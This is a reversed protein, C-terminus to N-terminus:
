ESGSFRVQFTAFDILDVDGDSDLDAAACESFAMMGPGTWCGKLADLDSLSMRGDGNVDGLPGQGDQHARYYSMWIQYDVLTIAGDGDYDAAAVYEPDGESHGFAAQFLQFDDEDMDGDHDLDARIPFVEDAGVDVRGYCVRPDGDIDTAGPAPAFAPDGANICPSDETLHYNYVHYTDGAEVWCAGAEVTPWDAWVTITNATNGVVAFQLRQSADPNVMNGVLEDHQWTAADDTFIARYTDADYTAHLTWTGSAEVRFPPEDDINGDGWDLMGGSGVYASTRGGQVDSYLVAVTGDHTVAIEHGEFGHNAWLVCSNMTAGGHRCYIGGGRRAWNAGFTCNRITLASGVGAFRIGGGGGSSVYGGASNGCIMCNLVTLPGGLVSCCMGGGEGWGRCSNGSIICGSIMAESRSCYIGGGDAYQGVTANGTIACDTIVPSSAFCFVGGGADDHTEGLAANGSIVSEAVVGASLEDFYIGGGREASNGSLLCDSVIITSREECYIGGGDRASNESVTSETITLGSNEHCAVGGGGERGYPYGGTATNGRITCGSIALNGELCSIGGGHKGASNHSVTCNVITAESRRCYIGGGHYYALCDIIRCNLITPSAQYCYIGGGLGFSPYGPWVHGNVVTVGALVSNASEDSYFTFGRHPDEECVGCDVITTAVMAPDEPDTCRVTIPKGCFDIDRNGDGTYVRPALVVADGPQAADIAAQITPYESPVQRTTGIRLIVAVSQPTNSAQSAAIGLICGHPGAQLGAVDLTVTALDVEGTSEGALPSVQLWDCDESIQWDLTGTGGNQIALTRPSPAPGDAPVVLEWVHPSLAIVPALGGYEYAGMDAVALGDGDGDISRPNGDADTPPLGGPPDNTGADVCPSDSTLHVDDGLVFAPSADINGDGWNLTCGEEVDASAEGGEVVCHSVTLSSHSSSSSRLAIEPGKSAVDDWLICNVLTANSFECRIGGGSSSECTSGNGSIKCNGITASSHYSCYIGGGNRSSNGSVVCNTITPTSYYYCHIGGGRGSASTRNGVIVCNEITPDNESCRIGGGSYGASNGSITCDAITTTGSYCRIGGGGGGATNGSM